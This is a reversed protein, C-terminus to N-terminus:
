LPQGRCARQSAAWCGAAGLALADPKRHLGTNITLHPPQGTIMSDSPTKSFPGTAYGHAGLTTVPHRTPDPPPPAQETAEVTVNYRLAELQRQRRRARREVSYRKRQWDPGLERFPVQAERSPLHHPLVVLDGANGPTQRARARWNSM